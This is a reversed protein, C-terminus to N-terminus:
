RTVLDLVVGKFNPRLAMLIEDRRAAAANWQADPVQIRADSPPIVRVRFDSFGMGFLVMEAREVCQLMEVTIATNTPIRTALCAYSPKDHTFLGAQESLSRIEAKALGSERLPSLIGLERLARMGPRDSEDDDANTGDCIVTFGDEQALERIRSFVRLKCHYCRKPSNEVVDSDGLADFEYVTLPINLQEVIRIADDLEMQPQFQSKIFYARVDCGAEKAAYLLYTSDVGGSYAVAVKPNNKFFRQLCM